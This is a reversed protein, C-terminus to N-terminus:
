KTLKAPEFDQEEFEEEASMYQQEEEPEFPEFQEESPEFPEIEEEPEFPEFPTELKSDVVEVSVVKSKKKPGLM